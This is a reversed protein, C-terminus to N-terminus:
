KMLNQCEADRQIQQWIEEDEIFLPKKAEKRAIIKIESFEPMSSDLIYASDAIPLYVDLLNKLGRYYRRMIDEKPINHGGQKVRLDVRKVAQEPSSLWLFLLNIEYGANKAEKLYKHHIKASGTTEFVFSRGEQLCLRLRKLMLKSAEVNVSEPRMPSLGRAIEDANLFEEYVGELDPILAYAITTKGAGNPGAVMRIKKM